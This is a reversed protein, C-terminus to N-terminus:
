CRISYRFTVFCLSFLIAINCVFKAHSFNFPIKFQRFTLKGTFLVIGHGCDFHCVM